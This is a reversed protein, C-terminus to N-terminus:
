VTVVQRLLPQNESPRPAEDPLQLLAIAKLLVLICKRFISSIDGESCAQQIADNLAHKVCQELSANNDSDAYHNKIGEVTAAYLALTADALGGFISIKNLVQKASYLLEGVKVAKLCLTLKDQDIDIDPTLLRKLEQSFRSYNKARFFTTDLTFVNANARLIDRVNSECRFLHGIATQTKSPTRSVTAGGGRVLQISDLDRHLFALQDASYGYGNEYDLIFTPSRLNVHLRDIKKALDFNANYTLARIIELQSLYLTKEQEPVNDDIHSSGKGVALTIASNKSVLGNASVRCISIRDRKAILLAAEICSNAIAWMLPTNGWSDVQSTYLGKDFLYNLMEIHGIKAAYQSITDPDAQNPQFNAVFQKIGEEDRIALIKQIGEPLHANSRAM